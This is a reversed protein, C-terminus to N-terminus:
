TQVVEAWAKDLRQISVKEATGLAQAFVSVRFEHLLWRYDDMAEDYDRSSELCELYRQWYPSVQADLRADRQPDQHLREMRVQLAQLYRPYQTLRPAELDLLFGPYILDELNSQMDQHALPHAQAFDDDLQQNVERLTALISSLRKAQQQFLGGIEARVRELLKCFSEGSRVRALEEGGCEALAHWVLETILESTEGM